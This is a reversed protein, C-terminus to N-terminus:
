NKTQDKSDEVIKNICKVELSKWKTNGNLRNNLTPRSIDLEKALETKNLNFQIIVKAKDTTTM